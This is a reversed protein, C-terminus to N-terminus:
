TISMMCMKQLRLVEALVFTSGVPIVLCSILLFAHGQRREAKGHYTYSSEMFAHNFEQCHFQLVPLTKKATSHHSNQATTLKLHQSQLILTDFSPTVQESIDDLSQSADISTWNPVQQSIQHYLQRVQMCDFNINM